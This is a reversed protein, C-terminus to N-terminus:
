LFFLICLALCNVIVTAVFALRFSSKITKHRFIKQALMAGPWGCALGCLLLTRESIRSASKRAAMKDIGYMFFAILSMVVYLVGVGAWLIKHVDHLVSFAETM